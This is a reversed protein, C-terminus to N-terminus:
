LFQELAFLLLLCSHIIMIHSRIGKARRDLDIDVHVTRGHLFVGLSGIQHQRRQVLRRRGLCIVLFRQLERGETACVSFLKDSTVIPILYLFITIFSLFGRDFRTSFRCAHRHRRFRVYYCRLWVVDLFLEFCYM